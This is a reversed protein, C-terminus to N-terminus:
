GYPCLQTSNLALWLIPRYDHIYLWTPPASVGELFQSEQEESFGWLLVSGYPFLFADRQAGTTTSFRCHVVDTYSVISVKDGFRPRGFCVSSFSANPARVTLTSHQRYSSLRYALFM